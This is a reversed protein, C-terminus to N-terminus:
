SVTGKALAGSGQGSFSFGIVGESSAEIGVEGLTISGTYNDDGTTDGEPRIEISYVSDGSIVETVIASQYTDDPDFMGSGEVSWNKNTATTDIWEDGFANHQESNQTISLTFSTLEGILNGASDRLSGNYGKITAM